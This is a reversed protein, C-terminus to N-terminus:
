VSDTNVTTPVVAMFPIENLDARAAAVPGARKGDGVYIVRIGKKEQQRM